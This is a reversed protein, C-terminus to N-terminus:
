QGSTEVTNDIGNINSTAPGKVEEVEWWCWGQSVHRSRGSLKSARQRTTNIVALVIEAADVGGAGRRARGSAASLYSGRSSPADDGDASGFGTLVGVCSVMLCCCTPATRRHVHIPTDERAHRWLRTTHILAHMQDAFFSHGCAVHLFTVHCCCGALLKFSSVGHDTYLSLTLSLALGEPPLLGSVSGVKM